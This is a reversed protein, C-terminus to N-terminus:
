SNYIGIKKTTLAFISKISSWKLVIAYTDFYDVGQTQEFGRPVLRPKLKDLKYSNKPKVKFIWKLVMINEGKLLDITIWTRNKTISDM